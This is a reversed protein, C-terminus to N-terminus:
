KSRGVADAMDDNCHVIQWSVMYGVSGSEITARRQVHRTHDRRTYRDRRKDTYRGRRKNWTHRCRRKTQDTAVVDSTRDRENTITPRIVLSWTARRIQREHSLLCQLRQRAPVGEVDLTQVSPTVGIIRGSRRHRARHAFVAVRLTGISTTM